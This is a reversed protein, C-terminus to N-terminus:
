WSSDIRGVFFPPYCESVMAGAYEFVRQAAPSIRIGGRRALRLDSRLTYWVERYIEKKLDDDTMSAHVRLKKRSM